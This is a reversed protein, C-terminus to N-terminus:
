LVQMFSVSPEQNRGGGKLAGCVHRNLGSLLCGLAVVVVCPGSVESGDGASCAALLSNAALVSLYRASTQWLLDWRCCMPGLM